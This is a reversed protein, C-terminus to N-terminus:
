EIVLEQMIKQMCIMCLYNAELNTACRYCTLALYTMALDLDM